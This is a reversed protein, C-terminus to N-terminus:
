AIEKKKVLRELKGGDERKERDRDKMKEGRREEGGDRVWVLVSSDSLCRDIGGRMQREVFDM